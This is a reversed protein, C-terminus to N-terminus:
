KTWFNVAEWVFVFPLAAANRNLVVSVNLLFAYICFMRIFELRFGNEACAAECNL